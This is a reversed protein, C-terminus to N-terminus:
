PQESKEVPRSGTEPAPSEPMERASVSLQLARKLIPDLDGGRSDKVVIDPPVGRRSYDRGKPSLITPETQFVITEGGMLKQVDKGFLAGATREGVLTARGNDQLTMALMEAGSGTNRNTLVLVRVGLAGPRAMFAIRQGSRFAFVQLVQEELFLDAVANAEEPRGGPNDRLDLILTRLGVGASKIKEEVRAAIDAGEFSTIALRLVGSAPRDARVLSSAAPGSEAPQSRASMMTELQAVQEKLLVCAEDWGTGALMGALGAQILSVRDLKRGAAEDLRSLVPEFRGTSAVTEAPGPALEEGTQRKFEASLSRIAAAILDKRNPQPWVRAELVALADDLSNQYSGAPRTAYKTIFRDVIVQEQGTTFSRVPRTTPTANLTAVVALCALIDMM